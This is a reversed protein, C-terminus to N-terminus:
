HMIQTLPNSNISLGYISKKIEPNGKFWGIDYFREILKPIEESSISYFVSNGQMALPFGLELTGLISPTNIRFGSNSKMNYFVSEIKRKNFVEFFVIDDSKILNSWVFSIRDALQSFTSPDFGKPIGSNGFDFLLKVRANSSQNISYVKNGFPEIFYATDCVSESLYNMGVLTISKNPDFRFLKTINNSNDLIFIQYAGQDSDDYTNSFTCIKDGFSSIEFGSNLVKISKIYLGSKNYVLIEHAGPTNLLLIESNKNLTFDQIRTYEGPGKGKKDITVVNSTHRNFIVLKGSDHFKDLLFFNESTVIMKEIRSLLISSDPIIFFEPDFFHNSLTKSDYFEYLPIKNFDLICKDKLDSKKGSCSVSIIIAFLILVTKM